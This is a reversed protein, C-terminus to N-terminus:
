MCNSLTWLNHMCITLRCHMIPWYVHPLPHKTCVVVLRRKYYNARSTAKPGTEFQHGVNIDMVCQAHNGVRCSATRAVLVMGLVNRAQIM